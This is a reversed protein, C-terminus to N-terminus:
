DGHLKEILAQLPEDDLGYPEFFERVDVDPFGALMVCRQLEDRVLESRGARVQHLADFVIQHVADSFRVGDLRALLEPRSLGSQCLAKLVTHEVEQRGARM